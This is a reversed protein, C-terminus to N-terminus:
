EHNATRKKAFQQDCTVHDGQINETYNNMDVSIEIQLNDPSNHISM